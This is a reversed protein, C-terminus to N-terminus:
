KLRRILRASIELMKNLAANIEEPSKKDENLAAANRAALAKDLMEKAIKKNDQKM